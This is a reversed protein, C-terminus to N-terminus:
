IKYEKKLAEEVVKLRKDLNELSLGSQEAKPEQPKTQQTPQETNTTKNENENM